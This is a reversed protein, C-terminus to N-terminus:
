FNDKGSRFLFIFGSVVSMMMATYSTKSISVKRENNDKKKEDKEIVSLAEKNIKDRNDILEDDVKNDEKNVVEVIINKSVQYGYDDTVTYTVIYEGLFSTNVESNFKIKHTINNGKYDFATVDKLPNFKSRMEITKNKAYIKPMHSKIDKTKIKLIKYNGAKDFAKFILDGDIKSSFVIKNSYSIKGDPLIIYSIGSLNDIVEVELVIKNDIINKKILKLSPKEKDINDIQVTNEFVEGNKLYVKVSYEGNESADFYGELDSTREKNPLEIKEINVIESGTIKYEIRIDSNSWDNNSSKLDIEIGKLAENNRIINQTIVGSFQINRDEYTFRTELCYDEEVLKNWTFIGDIISGKHSIDYNVIINNPVIIPNNINISKKNTVIDTLCIKQKTFDAKELNMKELFTIDTIKNGSANLDKLHTLESVKSLESINNNALNLVELNKFFEIGNIYRINLSSLDLEKISLAEDKTISEKLDDKNLYLNIGKLLNEDKIDIYIDKSSVDEDKEISDKLDNSEDKIEQSDDKELTDMTKVIKETSDAFVKITPYSQLLVAGSVILGSVIKKKKM